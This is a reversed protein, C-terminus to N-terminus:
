RSSARSQRSARWQGADVRGRGPGAPEPLAVVPVALASQPVVDSVTIVPEVSSQWARCRDEASRYAHVLLLRRIQDETAYRLALAREAEALERTVEPDRGVREPEPGVRGTGRYPSGPPLGGSIRGYSGLVLLLLGVVVSFVINPLRFALLNLSTNLVLMNAMGSLLFAVGLVIAATSATPGSRTASGVLLVGVVLSIVSLLGNSSLGLVWTGTTGLWALGETLGLAAFLILFAGVAAAGLRHLRHVPHPGPRPHLIGM